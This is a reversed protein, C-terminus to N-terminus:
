FPPKGDEGDGTAAEGDTTAMDPKATGDAVMARMEFAAQFRPDDPALLSDRLEGNAPVIDYNYFEGKTNKQRTSKIRTLNAFLPPNKKQGGMDVLFMRLKSMWKKYAKIKTSTFDVIIPTCNGDDDVLVGYVYFTEVLDNGSETKYKGFETSAAKADVFIKDTLEYTGVFGGGADRPVWENVVHETVAPVFLVGEDGDFLEETVSNLMMGVEAGEMGGDKVPKVQESLGQLLRLFPVSIDQNDQNEFGQGAFDAYSETSVESATKTAVEGKSKRAAM